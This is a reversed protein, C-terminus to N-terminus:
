TNRFLRAMIGPCDRVLLAHITKSMRINISASTSSKEGNCFVINFRIGIALINGIYPKWNCAALTQSKANCANEKRQTQFTPLFRFSFFFCVYSKDTGKRGVEFFQICICIRSKTSLVACIGPVGLQMIKLCSFQPPINVVGM